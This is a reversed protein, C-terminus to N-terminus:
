LQLRHRSGEGPTRTEIYPQTNILRILLALPSPHAEIGNGNSSRRVSLCSAM